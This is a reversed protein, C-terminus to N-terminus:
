HHRELNAIQRGRKDSPNVSTNFSEQKTVSIICERGGSIQKADAIIIRHRRYDAALMLGIVRFIDFKVYCERGELRGSNIENGCLPILVKKFDPSLSIDVKDLKGKLIDPIKDTKSIIAPSSQDIFGYLAVEPRSQGERTVVARIETVGSIGKKELYNLVFDEIVSGKINYIVGVPEIAVNTDLISQRTQPNNNM